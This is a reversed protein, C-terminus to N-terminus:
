CYRNTFEKEKKEFKSQETGDVSESEIEGPVEIYFLTM